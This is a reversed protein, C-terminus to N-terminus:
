QPPQEALLERVAQELAPRWDPQALGFAHEFRTCDLVSNAPREAETPFEATSIPEVREVKLATLPRAIDFIETAFGHWTVAPRGAFHYLGWPLAGSARYQEILQRTARAIDRAATPGGQQDDVVRLTEHRAGLRLMSRVFNHGHGSFVWAVRLILHERVRSQVAREGLWKSHGYIGTPDPTDDERWPEPKRGNFVYDTSYHFLPVGLQACGEALLRPGVHNVAGAQAPESEAKDVATYAAANVVLNPKHRTLASSVSHENTIDLEGRDCAVLQVGEAWPQRRLERGVQGTAGTVLVTFTM